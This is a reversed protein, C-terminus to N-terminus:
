EGSGKNHYVLCSQFKNNFAVEMKDLRTWLEEKFDKFDEKKFYHEKIQDIHGEVKSMREKTTEHNSKMFFMGIGLLANILISLGAIVFPDM